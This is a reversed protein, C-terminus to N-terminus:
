SMESTSLVILGAWKRMVCKSTTHTVGTFNLQAREPATQVSLFTLGIKQYFQFVCIYQLIDGTLIESDAKKLNFYKM